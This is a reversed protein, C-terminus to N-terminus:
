RRGPDPETQPWTRIARRGSPGQRPRRSRKRADPANRTACVLLAMQTRNTAGLKRMPHRVHVKVTAESLLDLERGIAKNTLGKELEMLVDRQRRTLRDDNASIRFRFGKGPPGRGNPPSTEPPTQMMLPSMRAGMSTAHPYYSRGALISRIAAAAVEPTMETPVIGRVGLTIATQIRREDM